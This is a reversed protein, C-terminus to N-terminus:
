GSVAGDGGAHGASVGGKGNFSGRPARVMFDPLPRSILPKSAAARHSRHCRHSRHSRAPRRCTSELTVVPASGPGRQKVKQTHQRAQVRRRRAIGADEQGYVSLILAHGFQNLAQGATEAFECRVVVDEHDARAVAARHGCAPEGPRQFRVARGHSHAYQLFTALMTGALKRVRRGRRGLLKLDNNVPLADAALIGEVFKM